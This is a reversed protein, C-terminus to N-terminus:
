AFRPHVGTIGAVLREFNPQDDLSRLLCFDLNKLFLPIREDKVDVGPLAVPVVRMRRAANRNLAARVEPAQWNGLGKRGIFVVSTNLQLLAEELKEQWPDGPVLEWRDFWVQLNAEDRLREAIQTVEDEDERSYSLFADYNMTSGSRVLRRGGAAPSAGAVGPRPLAGAAREPETPEWAM